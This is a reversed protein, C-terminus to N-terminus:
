AFFRQASKADLRGSGPGPAQPLFVSSLRQSGNLVILHIENKAIDVHRHHIAQFKDLLEGPNLIRLPNRNDHDRGLTAFAMHDLRKGSPCSAVDSLWEGGILNFLM